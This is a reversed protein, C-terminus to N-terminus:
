EVAIEVLFNIGCGFDVGDPRGAHPEGCQCAATISLYEDEGAVERGGAERTTGWTGSREGTVADLIQSVNLEHHCRPCPGVVRATRIDALTTLNAEMSGDLLADYAASTWRYDNPAEKEYPLSAAGQDTV